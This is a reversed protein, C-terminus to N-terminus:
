IEGLFNGALVFSAFKFNEGLKLYLAIDFLSRVYESLGYSFRSNFHLFFFISPLFLSLTVM